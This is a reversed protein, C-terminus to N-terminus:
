YFINKGRLTIHSKLSGGSPTGHILWENVINSKLLAMNGVYKQGKNSLAGEEYSCRLM